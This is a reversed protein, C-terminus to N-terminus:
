RCMRAKSSQGLAAIFLNDFSVHAYICVNIFSALIKRLQNLKPSKKAVTKYITQKRFWSTTEVLLM